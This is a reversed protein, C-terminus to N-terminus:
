GRIGAANPQRLPPCSRRGQLCIALEAPTTGRAKQWYDRVTEPTAGGALARLDDTSVHMIEALTAVIPGVIRALSSASQTVGLTRGQVTAAARRSALGIMAPGAMGFGAGLLALALLSKKM